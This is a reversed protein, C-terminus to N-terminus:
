EDLENGDMWAAERTPQAKTDDTINTKSLVERSSGM